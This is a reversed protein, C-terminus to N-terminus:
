YVCAYQLKATTNSSRPLFYSAILFKLRAM